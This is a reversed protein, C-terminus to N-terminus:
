EEIRHARCTPPPRLCGGRNRAQDDALLDADLAFRSLHELGRPGKASLDAKAPPRDSNWSTAPAWSAREPLTSKRELSVGHM